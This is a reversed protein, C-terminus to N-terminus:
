CVWLCLVFGYAFFMKHANARRAVYAKVLASSIEARVTNQIDKTLDRSASAGIAHDYRRKKHPPHAPQAPPPLTEEEECEVDEVFITVMTNVIERHDSEATHWHLSSSRLHRYINGRAEEESVWSQCGKTRDWSAKSCEEKCPCEPIYWRTYTPMAKVFLASAVGSEFTSSCLPQVNFAILVVM